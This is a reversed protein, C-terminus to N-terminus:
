FYKSINWTFWMRGILVLITLRPACTCYSWDRMGFKVSIWEGTGSCRCAARCISMVDGSCDTSTRVSSFVCFHRIRFVSILYLYPNSFYLSCRRKNM